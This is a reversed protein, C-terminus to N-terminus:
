STYTIYEIHNNLYEAIREAQEQTTGPTLDFGIFGSRLMDLKDEQELPDATIWPTTDAYNTVRFQYRGRQTKGDNSHM